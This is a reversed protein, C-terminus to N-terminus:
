HKVGGMNPKTIIAIAVLHHAVFLAITLAAFATLIATFLAIAITHGLRFAYCPSFILLPAEETLLLPESSSVRQKYIM